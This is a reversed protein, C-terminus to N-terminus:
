DHTRKRGRIQKAPNGGYVTWAQLDDTAIAGLALVAGRHLTIGALVTARACIWSYPELVIEKSVMPFDARDLDHTAGCLYAQQSVTVHSGIVVRCPNYIVAGDAIAVV